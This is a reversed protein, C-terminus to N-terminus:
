LKWLWEAESIKEITILIIQLPLANPRYIKIFIMLKITRISQGRGVNLQINCPNIAFRDSWDEEESEEVKIEAM